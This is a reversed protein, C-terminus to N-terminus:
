VELFVTEGDGQLRIDLRWVGDGDPVAILTGRRAADEISSLLPDTENLAEGQFYARTVLGSMLGRSLLCIAIHPAQQTNGLGAVPGPRVTVLRFTGSDDTNARGFGPFTDSAAPDTQWIEVCVGPCPAGDGDRITGTLVIREGAAGFRTLDAWSKDEMIHWFPGITQSATASTM